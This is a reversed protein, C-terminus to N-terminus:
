PKVQAARALTHTTRVDVPQGNRVKELVRAVQTVHSSPWEGDVRDHLDQLFAVLEADVAAAAPRLNWAAIAAALTPKDPGLTLCDKCEGCHHEVEGGLGTSWVTVRESQCFPCPALPTTM